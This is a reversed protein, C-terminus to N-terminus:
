NLSELEISKLKEELFRTSERIHKRSIEEALNGDGHELAKIIGLHENLTEQPPRVLGAQYAIITVNGIMELKSLVPNNAIKYILPHFLRDANQYENLNINVSNEEFPSFLSKLNLLEQSTIKRAALRAALGEFVERVYFIDLIEGLSMKKVYIGRRPISEVLFEHELRQLAKLLPSRSIGLKESLKEQVIKQGPELEGNLIMEKLILYVRDTLEIHNILKMYGKKEIFHRKFEFNM